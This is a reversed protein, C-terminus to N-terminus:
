KLRIQVAVFFSIGLVIAVVIMEVVSVVFYLETTVEDTM